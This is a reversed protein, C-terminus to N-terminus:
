EPSRETLLKEFFLPVSSVSSPDCIRRVVAQIHPDKVDSLLNKHLNKAETSTLRFMKSSVPFGGSPISVMPTKSKKKGRKESKKM